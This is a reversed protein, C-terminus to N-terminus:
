RGASAGFSPTRRSRIRRDFSEGACSARHTPHLSRWIRRQILPSLVGSASHLSASWSARVGLPSGNAISASVAHVSTGPSEAAAM